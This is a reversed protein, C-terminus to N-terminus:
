WEGSERIDRQARGREERGERREMQYKSVLYIIKNKMHTLSGGGIKLKRNKKVDDTFYM